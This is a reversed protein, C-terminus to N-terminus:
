AQLVKAYGKDTLIYGRNEWFLPMTQPYRPLSPIVVTSVGSLLCTKELANVLGKGIGKEKHEPGVSLSKIIADPKQKDIFFVCFTREKAASTYVIRFKGAADYGPKEDCDIVRISDEPHSIEMESFAKRANDELTRVSNEM